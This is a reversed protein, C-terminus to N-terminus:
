GDRTGEYEDLATHEEKRTLAGRAFGVLYGLECPGLTKPPEVGYLRKYEERVRKEGPFKTGPDPPELTKGAEMIENKVRECFVHWSALGPQPDNMLAVLRRCAAVFKRQQEENM